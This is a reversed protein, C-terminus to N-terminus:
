KADQRIRNSIFWAKLKQDQLLMFILKIRILLTGFPKGYLNISGGLFLYMM